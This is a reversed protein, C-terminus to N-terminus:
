EMWLKKTTNLRWLIHVVTPDTRRLSSSDEQSYTKSGYFGYININLQPIRPVYTNDGNVEDMAHKIAASPSWRQSYHVSPTAAKFLICKKALTKKTYNKENL